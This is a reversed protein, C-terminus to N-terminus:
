GLGALRQRAAQRAARMAQFVPEAALLGGAFYATYVPRYHGKHVRRLQDRKKEQPSRPLRPSCEPQPCTHVARSAPRYLRQRKLNPTATLHGKPCFWLEDMEPPKM